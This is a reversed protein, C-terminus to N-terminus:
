ENLHPGKKIHARRHQTGRKKKKSALSTPSTCTHDNIPVGVRHRSFQGFIKQPRFFLTPPGEVGEGGEGDGREDAKKGSKSSKRPQRRVQFFLVHTGGGGGGGGITGAESKRRHVLTSVVRTWGDRFHVRFVTDCWTVNVM